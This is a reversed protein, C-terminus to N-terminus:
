HILSGDADGDSFVINSQGHDDTPVASPKQPAPMPPLPPLNLLPASSDTAGASQSGTAQADAGQSGAAQALLNVMSSIDALNPIESDRAPVPLAASGAASSGHSLLMAIPVGTLAAFPSGSLGGALGGLAFNLINM